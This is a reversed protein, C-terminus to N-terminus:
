KRAWFLFLPADSLDREQLIRKGAEEDAGADTFGIAKATSVDWLPRRLMGAPMALTIEANERVLDATMGFHGYVGEPDIYSNKQNENRVNRAYDADFNILVGGKRLIRYWDRYAKEPDPLTWTLNRTVIADFSGDDFTTAQADMLLFDAQIDSQEAMKRAEEIMAPTLDIGTLRHGLATLIISFYGTGTGADLIDLTRGEPLYRTIEEIWRDTIGDELENRRVASFYPARQTWYDKVREQLSRM